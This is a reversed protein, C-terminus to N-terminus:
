VLSLTIVRRLSLVLIFNTTNKDQSQDQMTASEEIMSLIDSSLVDVSVRWSPFLAGSGDSHSMAGQVNLM